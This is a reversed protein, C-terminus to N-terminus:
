TLLGERPQCLSVSGHQQVQQCSREQEPFVRLFGVDSGPSLSQGWLLPWVIPLTDEYWYITRESSFSTIFWRYIIIIARKLTVKHMWATPNISGGPHLQFTSNAESRCGFCTRDHDVSAFCWLHTGNEMPEVHQLQLHQTKRKFHGAVVERVLTQHIGASLDVKNLYESGCNTACAANKQRMKKGPLCLECYYIWCDGM